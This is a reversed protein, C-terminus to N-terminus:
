RRKKSVVVVGAASLALLAGAVVLATDATATSTEVPKEIVPAAALTVKAFNDAAKGPDGTCGSALQIHNHETGKGMAWVFCFGFQSGVDVSTNDLFVEWPIICEYILKGDKYDVFANRGEEIVYEKKYQNWVNSIFAGTSSNKAIGFELRNTGTDAVGAFNVQVCAEQWINGAESTQSYDAKSLALTAAVNVGKENWSMYLKKEASKAAALQADVAYAYSLWSDKVDVEYYEGESIKGDMKVETNAKKIDFAVKKLDAEPQYAASASLAMSAALVGAMVLSAIKKM